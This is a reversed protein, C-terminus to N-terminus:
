GRVAGLTMGRVLYKRALFAYSLVPLIALSSAACAPGWETSYGGVFRVVAVPITRADAGGLILPFLFQNTSVILCLLSATILGPRALPIVISFFARLRSCGDVLAAEEIESPIEAVFGKMLWVILPLNMSIYVFILGQKTGLLHWKQMLLYFPIVMVIPPFMVTTLIWFGLLKSINSPMRALSYGALTGIPISILLAVGSIIITNYFSRLFLADLLLKRYNDFTPRFLLISWAFIHEVSKFSM